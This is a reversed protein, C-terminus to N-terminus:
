RQSLISPLDAFNAQVAQFRDGFRALRVGATEVAQADWDIGLVRMEPYRDLLRESHGGLGVTGDVLLAAHGFDFAAVVEDALVPLHEYGRTVVRPASGGKRFQSTSEQQLPEM